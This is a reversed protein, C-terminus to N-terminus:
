RVFKWGGKNTKNSEVNELGGMNSDWSHRPRLDAYRADFRAPNSARFLGRADMKEMGNFRVSHKCKRRSCTPERCNRTRLLM